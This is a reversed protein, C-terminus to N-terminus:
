YIHLSFVDYGNEKAAQMAPQKQMIDGGWYNHDWVNPTKFWSEIDMRIELDTTVDKGIVFSTDLLNVQFYNQVFGIISDNVDYLQGIGIHFNFPVVQSLSDEWKGNLKLYHYGGGLFEPWFMDREPPNVYMYSINKAQNIGFTFRIAKYNGTKIKDVVTWQMTSPIDNDVYHIDEGEDITVESNDDAILVVDSIFYQVENIQYVNGAANVYRMTDIQLAQGDVYHSFKLTIKGTEETDPPLVDDEKCSALVALFLVAVLVLNKKM